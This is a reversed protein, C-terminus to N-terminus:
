FGENKLCNQYLDPLISQIYSNEEPIPFVGFKFVVRKFNNVKRAVQRACFIEAAPKKLVVFFLFFGLLASLLIILAQHILLSKHLVNRAAEIFITGLILPAFFMILADTWNSEHTFQPVFRYNVAPPTKLTDAYDKIVNYECMKRAKKDNFQDLQQNFTYVFNWGTDFQASNKDCIIKSTANDVYKYPKFIYFVSYAISFIIVYSILYISLFKKM